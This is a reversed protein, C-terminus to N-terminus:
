CFLYFKEIEIEIKEIKLKSGYMSIVYEATWPGSQLKLAVWQHTVWIYEYKIKECANIIGRSM